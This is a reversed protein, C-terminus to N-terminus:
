LPWSGIPIVIGGVSRSPGGQYLTQGAADRSLANMVREEYTEFEQAYDLGNARKWRWILGLEMLSESLVGTDTDAAWALQKTGGSSQCFALSIYEFTVSDASGPKPFILLKGERLAGQQFPSSIGLARQEEESQASIEWPILMKETQNWFTDPLMYDFDSATVVTGNMAGQDISSTSLTFTNRRRLVRWQGRTRLDKGELQALSLMQAQTANSVVTSPSALGLATSAGQVITLLSM